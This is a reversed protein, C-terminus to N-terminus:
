KKKGKKGSGEEASVGNKELYKSLQKMEGQALYKKIKSDRVPCNDVKLEKLKKCSALESPIESIENDNLILSELKGVM